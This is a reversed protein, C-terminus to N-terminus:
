FLIVGHPREAVAAPSMVIDLQKMLFFQSVAIYM